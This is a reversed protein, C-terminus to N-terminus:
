LAQLVNYSRQLWCWWLLKGPINGSDPVTPTAVPLPKINPTRYGGHSQALSPRAYIDAVKESGVQTSRRKPIICPVAYPSGNAQGSMGGFAEYTEATLLPRTYSRERVYSITHPRSGILSTPDLYRIEKAGTSTM